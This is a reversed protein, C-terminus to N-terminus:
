LCYQIKNDKRNILGFLESDGYFLGNDWWICPIGKSKAYSVYFEAWHVRAGNNEKNMAGFEGMILPIGKSVFINYARDFM